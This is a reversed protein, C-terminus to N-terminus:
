TTNFLHKAVNHKGLVQFAHKGVSYYIIRSRAVTHPHQLVSEGQCALPISLETPVHIEVAQTKRKMKYCRIM